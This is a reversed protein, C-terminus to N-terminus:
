RKGRCKPPRCDIKSATLNKCEKVVVLVRGIGSQRGAYRFFGHCTLSLGFLAPLRRCDSDAAFDADEAVIESRGM